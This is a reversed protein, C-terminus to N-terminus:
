IQPAYIQLKIIQWRPTSNSSPLNGRYRQVCLLAGSVFMAKDSMVHLIVNFVVDMINQFCDTEMLFLSIFVGGSPKSQSDHLVYGLTREVRWGTSNWYASNIIQSTVFVPFCSYDLRATRQLEQFPIKERKPTCKSIHLKSRKLGLCVCQSLNVFHFLM